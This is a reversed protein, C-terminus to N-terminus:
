YCKKSLSNKRQNQKKNKPSTAEVSERALISAAGINKNKLEGGQGVYTITSTKNEHGQYAGDIFIKENIGYRNLFKSLLTSFDFVIDEFTYGKSRINDILHKKLTLTLTLTSNQVIKARYKELSSIALKKSDAPALHQNLSVASIAFLERDTKGAEDVGVEIQPAKAEEFTMELKDSGKVVDTIARTFDTSGTIVLTYDKRKTIFISVTGEQSDFRHVLDERLEERRKLGHKELVSVIHEVTKLDLKKFVTAM